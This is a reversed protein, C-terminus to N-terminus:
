LVGLSRLLFDAVKCQKRYPESLNSYQQWLTVKCVLKSLDKQRDALSPYTCPIAYDGEQMLRCFDSMNKPYNFMESLVRFVAYWQGKETFLRNGAEDVAEMMASLSSEIKRESQRCNDKEGFVQNGKIYNTQSEIYNGYVIFKGKIEM